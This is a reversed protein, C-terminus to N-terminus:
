IPMILEQMHVGISDDGLLLGLAMVELFLSFIVETNYLYPLFQASINNKKYNTGLLDSTFFHDRM